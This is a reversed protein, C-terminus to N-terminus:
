VQSIQTGVPEDADKAKKSAKPPKLPSRVSNDRKKGKITDGANHSDVLSSVLVHVPKVVDSATTPHKEIKAEGRVSPANPEAKVNNEKEM